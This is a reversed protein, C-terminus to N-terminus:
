NKGGKVETVLNERPSIHTQCYDELEKKTLLRKGENLAISNALYTRYYGEAVERTKEDYTKDMSIEKNMDSKLKNYTIAEQTIPQNYLQNKKEELYSKDGAVYEGAVIPPTIQAEFLGVRQEFDKENFNVIDLWDNEASQLHNSSSFIDIDSFPKKSGSLLILKSENIPRWGHIEELLRKARQPTTKRALGFQYFTALDGYQNNFNIINDLGEQDKQGMNEYKQEFNELFGFNNSLFYESFVAFGEYQGLFNQHWQKLEQFKKNNERFEQLEKLSFNKGEFEQKEEELLGKELSILRKGALSYEGYLGHGFYEHFLTLPNQGRIIASQNRPLYIGTSNSNKGINSAVEKWESEPVVELSTEEPKYGLFDEYYKGIEKAWHDIESEEQQVTHM